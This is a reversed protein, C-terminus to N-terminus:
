EFFKDLVPEAYCRCMIDDGPHGTETPPDDWSFTQDNNLVHSDREREDGVGRWKYEDVGVQAQREENLAGNLKGVQDRAIREANWDTIEFRESLEDQLTQWTDGNKFGEYVTNAMDNFFRQPITKILQVNNLVYMSLYEEVWPEGGFLDIGLVAGFQRNLNQANFKSVSLGAKKAMRKIEADTFERYFKVSISQIDDYLDDQWADKRANPNVAAYFPLRPFLIERTLEKLRNTFRMLDALYEREVTYPPLPRPLRAPPKHLGKRKVLAKIFDVKHQDITSRKPM